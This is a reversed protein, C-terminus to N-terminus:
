VEVVLAAEGRRARWRNTAEVLEGCGRLMFGWKKVFGESVEWGDERWPEGWVMIGRQEVENFGEYLGGVLDCCLDDEDIKGANLILNDRM